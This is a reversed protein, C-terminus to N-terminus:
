SFVPLPHCFHFEWDSVMAWNLHKLMVTIVCAMEGLKRDMNLSQPIKGLHNTAAIALNPTTPM